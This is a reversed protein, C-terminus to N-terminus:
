IKGKKIHDQVIRFFEENAYWEIYGCDTCMWRQNNLKPYPKDAHIVNRSGCKPCTGTKKM